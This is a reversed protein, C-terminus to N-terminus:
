QVAEYGLPALDWKDGYVHVRMVPEGDKYVKGGSHVWALIGGRLNLMQIGKEQLREALKGSRYSITCYSIIMRGKYAEPNELFDKETIAGPLMSVAQEKPERVDVFVVKDEKALELAHEASIEMVQPFSQKYGDYMTEIQRRKELDSVDDVDPVDRGILYYILMGSVALGAFVGLFKLTIGRGGVKDKMESGETDLM